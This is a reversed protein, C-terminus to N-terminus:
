FDEWERVIGPFLDADGSRCYVCEVSGSPGYYSPEVPSMVVFFFERRKRCVFCWKEGQSERKVEEMAPGRCIYVTM